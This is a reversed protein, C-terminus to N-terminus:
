ESSTTFGILVIKEAFAEVPVEGNLVQYMSVTPFTARGGCFNILLDQGGDLYLLDKGFTAAGSTPDFPRVPQELYVRVVEYGFAPYWVDNHVRWLTVRRVVGDNDQPLNVLGVGSAARALPAIPAAYRDYQYGAGAQHEILSTLVVNGARRLSHALAEDDDPEASAYVWAVDVGIVAPQGAAIADILRAYNARRWTRINQDLVNFSEDNLAVINQSTRLRREVGIQPM